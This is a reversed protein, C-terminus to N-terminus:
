KYYLITQVCVALQTLVACEVRRWQISDPAAPRLEPESEHVRSVGIPLVAVGRPDLLTTPAGRPSGYVDAVSLSQSFWLFDSIPLVTSRDRAQAGLEGQM